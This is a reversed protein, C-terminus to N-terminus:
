IKLTNKSNKQLQVNVNNKNESLTTFFICFLYQVNYDYDAPTNPILGVYNGFGKIATQRIEVNSHM